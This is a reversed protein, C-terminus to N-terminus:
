GYQRGWANLGGNLLVKVECYLSTFLGSNDVYSGGHLVIAVFVVIEKFSDKKVNTNVRFGEYDTTVMANNRRRNNQNPQLRYGVLPDKRYLLPKGLGLLRGTSESLIIGMLFLSPLFLLNYVLKKYKM